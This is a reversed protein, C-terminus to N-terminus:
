FQTNIGTLIQYRSGAFKQNFVSYQPEVFLNFVTKGAAIIKGIGLGFPINIGSNEFDFASISSTRLYTGGGLQWMAFPQVYMIDTHAVGPGAFDRQWTVLGGYQIKPDSAIFVVAALGAQWRDPGLGDKATPAVLLPGAGFQKSSAPDSLLYAGFINFDGLGSTYNGNGANITTVPLTARLLVRGLPQAYRIFLQNASADDPAGYLSPLHLNQFNLTKMSALPNNAQKLAEESQARALINMSLIIILAPLLKLKLNKM